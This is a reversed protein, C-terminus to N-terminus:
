ETIKNANEIVMRIVEDKEEQAKREAEEKAKAEENAKQEAEEKSKQEAEEKEKQDAEEKEKKQEETLEIGGEETFKVECATSTCDKIVHPEIFESEIKKADAQAFLDLKQDPCKPSHKHM